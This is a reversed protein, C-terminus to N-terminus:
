LPAIKEGTLWLQLHHPLSTNNAQAPAPRNNVTLTLSWQCLNSLSTTSDGEKSINWFWRSMTRSLQSYTARTSCPTQVLHGETTEELRLRESIIRHDSKKFASTNFSCNGSVKVFLMKELKLVHLTQFTVTHINVAFAMNSGLWIRYQM